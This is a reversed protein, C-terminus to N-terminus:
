ISNHKLCINQDHELLAKIREDIMSIEREIRTMEWVLEGKRALLALLPGVVECDLSQLDLLEYCM